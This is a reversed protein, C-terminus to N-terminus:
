QQNQEIQVYESLILRQQYKSWVMAVVQAGNVRGDMETEGDQSGCLFGDQRCHRYVQLALGTDDSHVVYM